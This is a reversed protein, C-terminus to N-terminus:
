TNLTSTILEYENRGLQDFQDAAIGYTLLFTDEGRFVLRYLMTLNGKSILLERQSEHLVSTEPYEERIVQLNIGPSTIKEVKLARYGPGTFCVSKEDESHVSLSAPYVFSIGTKNHKYISMTINITQNENNWEIQAGMIDSLFRLPVFTTGEKVRAAVNLPVRHNNVRAHLEGPSIKIQMNGRTIQATKSGADWNVPCLFATSVFRLPVLTTGDVIFPPNKLFRVGDNVSALKSDIGLMVRHQETTALAPYVPLLLFTIVALCLFCIKKM